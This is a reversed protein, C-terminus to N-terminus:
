KVDVEVDNSYATCVDEKIVCMRFHAQGTPLGEWKLERHAPGREWWWGDKNVDPNEETDRSFRYGESDAALNEPVEWNFQIVRDGLAEATLKLDTVEIAKETSVVKDSGTKEMIREAVTKQNGENNAGETPTTQDSCGAGVLLLIVLFGGIGLISKKM